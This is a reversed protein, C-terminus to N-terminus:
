RDFERKMLFQIDRDMGDFRANMENRLGSIEARIVRLFMNSMLGLMGFLGATLVGIITWIQPENM